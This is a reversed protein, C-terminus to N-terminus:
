RVCLWSCLIGFSCPAVLDPGLARLTNAIVKVVIGVVIMGLLGDSNGFSVTMVFLRRM